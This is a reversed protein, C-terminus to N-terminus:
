NVPITSDAVINGDEDTGHVNIAISIKSESINNVQSCIVDRLTEAEKIDFDENDFYLHIYLFSDKRDIKSLAKIMLVINLMSSTNFYELKLHLNTTHHPSKIYDGIWSLLPEYVKSANEPFSRGSLKLEGTLHEFDIQPSKPTGEIFLDKIETM